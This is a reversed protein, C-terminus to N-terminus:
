NALTSVSFHGISQRHMTAIIRYNGAAIRVAEETVISPNVPTDESTDEAQERIEKDEQDQLSDAERVDEEQLALAEEETLYRDDEVLRHIRLAAASWTIRM